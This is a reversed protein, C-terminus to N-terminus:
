DKNSKGGFYSKIDKHDKKTGIQARNMVGGKVFYSKGNKISLNSEVSNKRERIVPVDDEDSTDFTKTGRIKKSPFKM